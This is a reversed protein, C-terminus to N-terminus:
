IYLCTKCTCLQVCVPCKWITSKDKIMLCKKFETDLIFINACDECFYNKCMRVCSYVIREPNLVSRCFHCKRIPKERKIYPHFHFKRLEIHDKQILSPPLKISNILVNKSNNFHADISHPDLLSIIEINDKQDM